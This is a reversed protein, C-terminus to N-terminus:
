SAAIALFAIALPRYRAMRPALLLSLLGGAV